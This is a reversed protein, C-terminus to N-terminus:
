FGKKEKYFIFPGFLSSHKGKAPRDLHINTPIPLLRCNFIEESPYAGAKGAFM